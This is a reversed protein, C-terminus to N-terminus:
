VGKRAMALAADAQQEVALSVRAHRRMEELAAVLADIVAQKEDAEAFARRYRM